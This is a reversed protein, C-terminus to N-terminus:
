FKIAKLYKKFTYDLNNRKYIEILDKFSKKSCIKKVISLKYSIIM